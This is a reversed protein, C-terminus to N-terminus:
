RVISSFHRNFYIYVYKFLICYFSVIKMYFDYIIFELSDPGIGFQTEPAVAFLKVLKLFKIKM